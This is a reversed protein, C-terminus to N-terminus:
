LTKEKLNYYAMPLLFLSSSMGLIYFLVQINYIGSEMKYDPLELYMWENEPNDFFLHSFVFLNLFFFGALLGYSLITKMLAYKKFYSAGAFLFCIVSFITLVLAYKDLENRFEDFFSLPGYNGMVFLPKNWRFLNCFPITIKFVLWFVPIFLSIFVGFKLVFEAIFKEFTSAPLMLFQTLSKKDRLSKFTQSTILLVGVGFAFCFMATYIDGRIIKNSQQIFFFCIVFMSALIGIALFLNNKFNLYLDYKLYNVFRKSNFYKEIKM